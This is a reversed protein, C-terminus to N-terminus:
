ANTGGQPDLSKFHWYGDEGLRSAARGREVLLDLHGVLEAMVDWSGRARGRYLRDAMQGATPEDMIALTELVRRSRREIKALRREVLDAADTIPPGHAAFLAPAGRDALERLGSMYQALLPARGTPSDADLMLGPNTPGSALLYDATFIAGSPDYTLWLHGPTHGAHHEVRLVSDGVEFVEGGEVPEFRPLRPDARTEHARLKAEDFGLPAFLSRAIDHRGPGTLMEIETHHLYVDCASAEQLWLAGGLHDGHSHTVIVRAVDRVDRGASRVADEIIPKSVALGSDILTVPDDPFLYAIVPGVAWSTPMVIPAARIGLRALESTVRVRLESEHTM